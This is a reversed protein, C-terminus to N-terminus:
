FPMPPLPLLDHLRNAGDLLGVHGGITIYRVGVPPAPLRRLLDVPIPHIQRRLDVDLVVGVRLRSEFQPALRDAPRFGIPLRERHEVCWTRTIERDRDDFKHHGKALHRGQDKDHKKKSAHHGQSGHEKAVAVSGALILTMCAAIAVLKTM